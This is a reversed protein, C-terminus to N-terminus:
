RGPVVVARGRIEGRSLREYVQPAQGLPVTEVGVRIRKARALTVLEILETVTGWYSTAIEAGYPLAFFSVPLTGRALGVIVLRGEARLLKAGLALTADSGVLDLVVDAGGGSTANRIASAAGADSHVVVDAGLTRAIELKRDSTDVAIIRAATTAKLLQIAMQGLGGVGIVVATAGPHLRDRSGAIAHYPTLAADALPAAQMPDFDGLPVLLRASPVLMYEAMGGDFGLGGGAGGLEAAHECYNERGLRCPPCQGCGWPGYVLVAEGPTVSTVGTGVEYVWGANEHGITFPLKWALLGEPWDMLHLDSHCAGAGAVKILVQGPGPVPTAVDCLEAPKGWRTLRLAKM